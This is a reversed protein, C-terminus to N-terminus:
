ILLGHGLPWPFNVDRLLMTVGAPITYFVIAYKKVSLPIKYKQLFDLYSFPRGNSHLFRADLIPKNRFWNQLIIVQQTSFIYIGAITDIHLSPIRIYSLGLWYCKNTSIQNSLQSRKDHDPRLEQKEWKKGKRTDETIERGRTHARTHTYCVVEHQERISDNFM